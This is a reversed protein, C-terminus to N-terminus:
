DTLVTVLAMIEACDMPAAEPPVAESYSGVLDALPQPTGDNDLQQWAAVAMDALMTRDQECLPEAADLSREFGEILDVDNPTPPAELEIAALKYEIDNESWGSVQGAGREDDGCGAVLAIALATLTLRRRM